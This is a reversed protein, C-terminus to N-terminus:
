VKYKNIIQPDLSNEIIEISGQISNLPTRIEHSITRVLRKEFEQSLKDREIKKILTLDEIIIGVSKKNQFEMEIKNLKFEKKVGSIMEYTIETKGNIETINM